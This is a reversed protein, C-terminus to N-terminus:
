LYTRKNTEILHAKLFSIEYFSEIPEGKRRLLICAFLKFGMVTCVFFIILFKLFGERPVSGKIESTIAPLHASQLLQAADDLLLAVAQEEALLPQPLLHSEQGGPGRLFGEAHAGRAVVVM